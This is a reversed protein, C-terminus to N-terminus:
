ISVKKLVPTAGIEFSSVISINVKIFAELILLSCFPLITVMSSAYRFPSFSACFCNFGVFLFLVHPVCVSVDPDQGNM